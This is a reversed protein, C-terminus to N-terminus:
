GHTSLNAAEEKVYREADFPDSIFIVRVPEAAQCPPSL